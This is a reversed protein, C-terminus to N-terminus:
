QDAESMAPVPLPEPGLEPFMELWWRRETTPGYQDVWGLAVEIQEESPSVGTSAIVQAAHVRQEASLEPWFKGVLAPAETTWWVSVDSGLAKRDAVHTAHDARGQLERAAEILDAPVPRRKSFRTLDRCAKAACVACLHDDEIAEVFAEIKEASVLGFATLMKAVARELPTGTM